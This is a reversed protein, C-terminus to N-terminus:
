TGQDCHEELFGLAQGLVEDASDRDTWPFEVWATWVLFDEPKKDFGDGTQPYTPQLTVHRQIYASAVFTGTKANRLADIRVTESQGGRRVVVEISKEVTYFESCFAHLETNYM